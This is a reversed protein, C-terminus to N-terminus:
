HSNRVAEVDKTQIISKNNGWSNYVYTLVEAVEEDSLAQAPMVSNYTVGNVTIEGTLGRIVSKIARQKDSNLYDSKSLPPFANAIGQGESQHCAFCTEMYKQRGAAIREKLTKQVM